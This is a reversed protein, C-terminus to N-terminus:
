PRAMCLGRAKIFLMSSMAVSTAGRTGDPGITIDGFTDVGVEFQDAM